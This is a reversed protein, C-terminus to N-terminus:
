RTPIVVLATLEFNLIVGNDNSNALPELTLTSFTLNKLGPWKLRNSAKLLDALVTDGFELAAARVKQGRLSAAFFVRLTVPLEINQSDQNNSIGRIANGVIVHYGKNLRPKPITEPDPDDWETLKLAAMRSQIYPVVDKMM